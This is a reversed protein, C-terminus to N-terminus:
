CSSRSTTTVAAQQLEKPLADLLEDNLANLRSPRNLTLTRVGARDSVLLPPAGGDVDVVM